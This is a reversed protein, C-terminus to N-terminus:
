PYRKRVKLPNYSIRELQVSVKDGEAVIGELVWDCPDREPCDNASAVDYAVVVAPATGELLRLELWASGQMGGGGFDLWKTTLLGASPCRKYRSLGVEYM